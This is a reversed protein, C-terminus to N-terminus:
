VIKYGILGMMVGVCIGSDDVVIMCCVGKIFGIGFILMSGLIFKEEFLGDNFYGVINCISLFLM